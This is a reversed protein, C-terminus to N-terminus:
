GGVHLLTILAVLVITNTAVMVHITASWVPFRGGDGAPRAHRGAGNRWRDIVGVGLLAVAGLLILAGYALVTRDFMSYGIWFILGSVALLFHLGMLAARVTPPRQSSLTRDSTAYLFLRYARGRLLLNGGFAATAVWSTLAVLTLPSAERFV